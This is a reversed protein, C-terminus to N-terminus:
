FSSLSQYFTKVRPFDNVVRGDVEVWAHALFPMPRVGVVMNAGIGRGRLLCTTVASRQLCLVRKPYWVSAREVAASIQGVVSPESASVVPRVLWSRVISCLTELSCCSLIIDFLAFGLIAMVVDATRPIANMAAHDQERAGCSPNEEPLPEHKTSKAILASKPSLGLEEGRRLLARLDERVRWRDVGYRHAIEEVVQSESMGRSLFAWMEAAVVNLKLLQDHKLDLVVAGDATIAFQPSDHM